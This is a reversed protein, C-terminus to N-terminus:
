RRRRRRLHVVDGLLIINRSKRLLNDGPRCWARERGERRRREEETM